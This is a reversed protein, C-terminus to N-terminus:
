FSDLNHNLYHHQPWVLCHFLQHMFLSPSVIFSHSLICMSLVHGYTVPAIQDSVAYGSKDITMEM